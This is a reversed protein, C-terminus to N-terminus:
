KICREKVKIKKESEQGSEEKVKLTVSNTYGPVLGILQYSHEKTFEEATGNYLSNTYDPIKSDNVSITYEVKSPSTTNFYINLGLINTGYPNLVLLPNDLDYDYEMLFSLNEDIVKRYLEDYISINKNKEVSYIGEGYGLNKVLEVHAKVWNADKLNKELKNKWITKITFSLLIIVLVVVIVIGTIESIKKL